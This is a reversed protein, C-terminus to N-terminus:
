FLFADSILALTDAHPTAMVVLSALIGQFRSCTGSIKNSGRETKGPQGCVDTEIESVRKKEVETFPINNKKIILPVHLARRM